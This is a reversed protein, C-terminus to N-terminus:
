FGGLPTGADAITFVAESLGLLLTYSYDSVGGMVLLLYDLATAM